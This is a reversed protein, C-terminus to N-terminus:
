QLFLMYISYIIKVAEVVDDNLQLNEVNQVPIMVGHSGDLGRM